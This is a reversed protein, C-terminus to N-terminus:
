EIFEVCQSVLGGGVLRAYYTRLEQAERLGLTRSHGAVSLVVVPLGATQGAGISDEGVLATAIAKDLLAVMEEPKLALAVADSIATRLDANAAM